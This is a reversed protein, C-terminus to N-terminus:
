YSWAAGGWTSTGWIGYPQTEAASLRLTIQWEEATVTEEFHEVHSEQTILPAGPAQAKVTVRSNQGLALLAPWAVTVDENQPKVTIQRIRTVPFGYLALDRQARGRSEDDSTGLLGTLGTLTRRGYTAKSTASRAVQVEGGANGVPIDNWLDTDDEGYNLVPVYGIEGAGEGFTCQSITYPPFLIRYRDHFTIVGDGTEFLRGGETLDLQRLYNTLKGAVLGGQATSVGTDIDTDASPWGIVYLIRAVKNGTHWPAVFEDSALSLDAVQSPTLALGDLVILEDLTDMPVHSAFAFDGYAVAPTNGVAYGTNLDQPWPPSASLAVTTVDTSEIYIKTSGANEFVVFVRHPGSDDVVNSSYVSRFGGGTRLVEAVLHGPQPIGFNSDVYIRVFSDPVAPGDTAYLIIKQLNRDPALQFLAIVTAPYDTILDKFPLLVRDGGSGVIPQFAKDPDGPILGPVGLNPSGEYIGNLGFGSSDAAVPGVTEGLRLWVAKRTSPVQEIINRVAEEWEHAVIDVLNLVAGLASYAEITVTAQNIGSWSRPWSVVYGTFVNHDVGAWTDVIRLRNLPRLNPYFPSSSNLPEFDGHRNDLVLSCYNPEIQALEHQAGWRRTAARVRDAGITATVDTWTVTSLADYPNATLGLLFKRTPRVATIDPM